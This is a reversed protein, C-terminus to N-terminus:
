SHEVMPHISLSFLVHVVPMTATLLQLRSNTQCALEREDINSAVESCDM